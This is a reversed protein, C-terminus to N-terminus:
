TYMGAPFFTTAESVLEGMRMEAGTEPDKADLLYSFLDERPKKGQALREKVMRKLLFLYKIKLMYLKPFWLELGFWLSIPAQIYVNTKYSVGALGEIAFRNQEETQTNLKHGFGYRGIIDVGLRKCRISMNVAEHVQTSRLIQKLFTDVHELMIPEFQRMKQESLATGVM